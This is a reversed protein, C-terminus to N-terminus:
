CEPRVGNLAAGVSIVRSSVSVFESVVVQIMAVLEYVPWLNEYNRLSKTAPGKSWSYIDPHGLPGASYIKCGSATCSKNHGIAVVLYVVLFTEPSSSLLSLM